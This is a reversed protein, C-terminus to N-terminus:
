SYEDILVRHQNLGYDEVNVSHTVEMGVVNEWATGDDGVIGVRIDLTDGPLSPDPSDENLDPEYAGPGPIDDIVLERTSDSPVSYHLDGHGRIGINAEGPQDANNILELRVSFDRAFKIPNPRVGTIRAQLSSDDSINRSGNVPQIDDDIGPPQQTANINFTESAFINGDDIAIISMEYEGESYEHMFIEGRNVRLPDSEDGFQVLIDYSRQENGPARAKWTASVGHAIDRPGELNIGADQQNQNDGTNGNADSDDLSGEPYVDIPQRANDLIGGANSILRVYVDDDGTIVNDARDGTYTYSVEYPGTDNTVEITEEPETPTRPDLYADIRVGESVEGNVTEETMNEGTIVWTVQQNKEVETPGDINISAFENSGSDDEQDDDSDSPPAPDPQPEPESEPPSSQSPPQSPPSSVPPSESSEGLSCSTSSTPITFKNDVANIFVIGSYAEQVKIKIESGNCISQAPQLVTSATLSKSFSFKVVSTEGPPISGISKVKDDDEEIFLAETGAPKLKGVIFAVSPAPAVGSNQITVQYTGTVDITDSNQTASFSKIKRKKIELANVPM